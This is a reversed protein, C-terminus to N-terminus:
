KIHNIWFKRAYEYAFSPMHKKITSKIRYKYNINENAKTINFIMPTKETKGEWEQTEKNYKWVPNGSFNDSLWFSDLIEKPLYNFKLLLIWIKESLTFDLKLESGLIKKWSAIWQIFELSERQTKTISESFNSDTNFIPIIKGANTSMKQLQGYPVQMVAELFFLNEFIPQNGDDAAKRLSKYKNNKKKNFHKDDSFMYLGNVPEDLIKSLSYQITGRYGIDVVTLKENNCRVQNVYEIYASKQINSNEIINDIYPELLCMVKKSDEPFSINLDFLDKDESIDYNLRSNLFEGLSGIYERKLVYSLDNKTSISAATTASRSAYFLSNKQPNFGLSKCYIEYMTKLVYGERTVFLLLSDDKQETLWDMFCAFPYGYWLNIVENKYENFPSNFCANNILYGLILSNNVDGNDYNELYQYLESKKYLSLGNEIHIAQKGINELTKCDSWENDGVHIIKKDKPLYEFLMDWIKGNNKSAGKENSVWIELNNPYGCKEILSGIQKASLYMDSCLIVRKGKALLTNLVKLMDRRPIVCALETEFELKSLIEVEEESYGFDTNLSKYIVDLGVKEGYRKYSLHEAEQREVYFKKQIKHKVKAIKEVIMFIDTPHVVSRAILTDFVDFSIIDYESLVQILSETNQNINNFDMNEGNLVNIKKFNIILLNQLFNVKKLFIKIKRFM